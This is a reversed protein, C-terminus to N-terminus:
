SLQRIAEQRYDFLMDNVEKLDEGLYVRLWDRLLGQADESLM